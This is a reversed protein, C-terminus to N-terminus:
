SNLWRELSAPNSALLGSDKLARYVAYILNTLVFALLLFGAKM